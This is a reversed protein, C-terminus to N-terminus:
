KALWTEFVSYLGFGKVGKARIRIDYDVGHELGPFEMESTESIDVFVFPAEPVLGSKRIEGTASFAGKPMSYHAHITQETTESDSLVL